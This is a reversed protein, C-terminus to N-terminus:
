HRQIKTAPKTSNRVEIPISRTEHDYILLRGGRLTKDYNIHQVLSGDAFLGVALGKSDELEARSIVIQEVGIRGAPFLQLNSPLNTFTGDSKLLHAIRVANFGQRKEWVLTVLLNQDDTAVAVHHLTASDGFHIETTESRPRGPERQSDNHLCVGALVAFLVMITTTALRNLDFKTPPASHLAHTRDRSLLHIALRRAPTEICLNLVAAVGLSIVLGALIGLPMSLHDPTHVVIQNLVLTHVMYFSYSLKGLYVLIPNSLLGAIPGQSSALVWLLFLSAPLSAGGRTLWMEGTVWGVQRAAQFLAQAFPSPHLSLAFGVVAVVEWVAHRQWQGVSPPLRYGARLGQAIIVGSMFEFLRFIPNSQIMARIDMSLHPYAHVAQNTILLGIILLTLAMLWSQFVRRSGGRILFPFLLCFCWETAVFWSVGNFSFVWDTLPVLNHLMLGNLLFAPWNVDYLLGNGNVVLGNDDWQFVGYRLLLVALLCAAHLPWLRAFRRLYFGRIGLNGMKPEYIHFLMFGSLVFFLSVAATSGFMVPVHDRYLQEFAHFFFIALSGLCRLSTLPALFETETRISSMTQGAQEGVSSEM